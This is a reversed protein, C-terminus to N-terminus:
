VKVRWSFPNRPHRAADAIDRLEDPNDGHSHSIRTLADEYRSIMGLSVYIVLAILLLLVIM